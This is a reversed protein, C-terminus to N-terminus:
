KGFAQRIAFPMPKITFLARMRKERNVQEIRSMLANLDRNRRREISM